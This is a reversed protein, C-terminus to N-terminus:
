KTTFRYKSKFFYIPWYGNQSSRRKYVVIEPDAGNCGYECVLLYKEDAAVGYCREKGEVEIENGLYMKDDELLKVKQGNPLTYELNIYSGNLLNLDTLNLGEIGLANFEQILTSKISLLKEMNAIKREQDGKVSRDAKAAPM